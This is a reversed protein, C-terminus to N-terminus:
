LNYTLGVNALIGKVGIFNSRIPQDNLYLSVNNANVSEQASVEQDYIDYGSFQLNARNVNISFQYGVGIVFEILRNQKFPFVFEVEPSGVFHKRSLDIEVSNSYFRTNNVEIFLDNQYLDGLKVWASGYSLNGLFRMEFKESFSRTFGVGFNVEFSKVEGLLGNLGLRAFIGSQFEVDAGGGINFGRKKRSILVENTLNDQSPSEDVYSILLAGSNTVSPSTGVQGYLRYTPNSSNTATNIQGYVNISIILLVLPLVTKMNTIKQKM